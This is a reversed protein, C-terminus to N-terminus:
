HGVRKPTTRERFRKRRNYVQQVISRVLGDEFVQSLISALNREQPSSPFSSMEAYQKKQNENKEWFCIHYESWLM